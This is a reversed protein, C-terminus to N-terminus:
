RGRRRAQELDSEPSEIAESPEMTACEDCLWIPRKEKSRDFFPDKTTGLVEGCSECDDHEPCYHSCKVARGAIFEGDCECHSM